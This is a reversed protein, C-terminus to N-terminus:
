KLSALIKRKVEPHLPTDRVIASFCPSALGFIEELKYYALAWQSIGLDISFSYVQTLSVYGRDKFNNIAQKSMKVQEGFAQTGGYHHILAHLLNKSAKIKKSSVKYKM